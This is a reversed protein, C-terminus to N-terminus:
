EGSESVADDDDHRFHFGRSLYFKRGSPIHDLICEILNLFLHSFTLVISVDARYAGSVRVCHQRTVAQRQREFPTETSGAEVATSGIM